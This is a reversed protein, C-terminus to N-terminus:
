SRLYDTTGTLEAWRASLFRAYNSPAIGYTGLSHGDNIEVLKMKGERDLGVDLGYAAPAESFADVANRVFTLDLKSDWAGKYPRIDLVEGYRIFCRWETRFDAIESCWIATDGNEDLLGIFDRYEKVVKGAFKKTIDKPKIFVNWNEPQEFLEQVTSAWIKRGLFPILSPPYDIEGQKRVCGLLELRKRVNGIGGVVVDEPDLDPIENVDSYKVTEWGFSAFGENAVFANVNYFEGNSNSQIFARM